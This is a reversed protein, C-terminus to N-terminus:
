VINMPAHHVPFYLRVAARGPEGSIEVEGGLLLARERISLLGFSKENRLAPDFGRGNDRVELLFDAHKRELTITVQTAQAHRVINTLSEQVIRFIATARKDDLHVEEECLQLVCQIGTRESYDGALWELASVIGMDLATPRLSAVVNRVVKITSDVMEVLRLTKERLPANSAGFEFDVVSIGLRLALLYQGLEDHLERKLHRREDERAAESRAALQRLLHQSEELHHEMQKRETIDRSIGVIRHIRGSADRVPILTSHYHRRGSPMDLSVEEDIAAGVNICRRYKAIVIDATEQPVTEEIFKGLLEASAIGSSREFAPNVELNRFRGDPTVELLYLTDLVNDFIGRYRQERERLAEEMRKRETIDRSLGIFRPMQGAVVVKRAISLEFWFTGHPLKLELQTGFSTGTENAERLASLCAEAAHVPMFDSVTKGILAEAPAALLNSQPPHVDYYRGDAGLEFLLDPMADLTAQLKNQSRQVQTNLLTLTTNSRRLYLLFCMTGAFVFAGSAILTWLWRQHLERQRLEATQQENHRTLADIERQKSESEYRQALEVMRTGTRQRAAQDSWDSAEAMFQYARRHDGSTAALGAMRKASESRYYVFDISKSLRYAREADARAAFFNGLSQYNESRANLSWWLGINNPYREYIAIVEQLVQVAEAHRGQQHLLDALGHLVNSLYFPIHNSRFITAAERMLAEGGAPDGLSALVGALGRMAAGELMKTHAARAQDRMLAYHARARAFNGSQEFSVAMGQHAYALALPDRSRKAIELSQMAMTISSDWDGLRRYMMSMRLLAEGLLDPRNAGELLDLSRTTATISVQVKGQNIANLTINLQAEAQGVSDGTQAALDQAQQAHVAAADTQALYLETRSLLNLIRVRDMATAATPLRAQLQQAQVHAGPPDNEALVRVRGVEARWAEIPDAARAVVPLAFGLLLACVLRAMRLLSSCACSLSLHMEMTCGM